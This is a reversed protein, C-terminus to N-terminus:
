QVEHRVAIQPTMWLPINDGEQSVMNQEDGIEIIKEYLGLYGVEQNIKTPHMEQHAESYGSSM